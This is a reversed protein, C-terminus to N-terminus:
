WDSWALRQRREHEGKKLGSAFIVGRIHEQQETADLAALLDTWVDLSTGNM